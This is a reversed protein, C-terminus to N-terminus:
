KKQGNFHNYNMGLEAALENQRMDNMETILLVKLLCKEVVVHINILLVFPM